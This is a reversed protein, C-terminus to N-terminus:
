RYIDVDLVSMYPLIQLCAANGLFKGTSTWMLFPCKHSSIYAGTSTWMLFLCTHSPIYVGQMGLFSVQLHGCWSCVHIPPYTLVQLHGCWSCVHIPPNTLVSCEWSVYRHIDVDLVSMYTQRSSLQSEGYAGKVGAYFGFYSGSMGAEEQLYKQYEARSEFTTMSAVTDYIGFVNM